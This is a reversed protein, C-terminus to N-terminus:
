QVSELIKKQQDLYAQQSILGKDHLRKLEVLREEGSMTQLAAYPTPPPTTNAPPTSERPPNVMQHIPQIPQGIAQHPEVTPKPPEIRTFTGMVVQILNPYEYASGNSHDIVAGIAGGFVINGFMSGKTESVISAMGPDHGDKRCTARLDDNSRHISTSGPSTVFWTGKSNTLECNAGSLDRGTQEKTQISISQNTSGTISACGTLFYGLSLIAFLQFGRRM